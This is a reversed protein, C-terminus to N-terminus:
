LFSFVITDAGDFLATCINANRKRRFCGVFLIMNTPTSLSNDSSNRGINM